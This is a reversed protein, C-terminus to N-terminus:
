ARTGVRVGWASPLVATWITKSKIPILRRVSIAFFMAILVALV